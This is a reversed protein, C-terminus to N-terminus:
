PEARDIESNITSTFAAVAHERGLASARSRGAARLAAVLRADTVVRRVAAAVLYPSKSGLVVGADGVTEPVAGAGYAVVPVGASMAELLPAGYGEHDSCMVLVDANRFYAALVEPSASGVLEVSKDLGLAEVYRRLARAYRDSLNRGVVFLRAPGGYAQRYAAFASVVDHQAKHPSVQGVALWDVCDPRATGDSRPSDAGSSSSASSPSSRTRAAAAAARKSEQLRRLTRPDPAGLDREPDVILPAVATRRYGAGELESENYSSVAIALGVEPALSRLQSRGLRVEAAVLPEWDELLAAPTMNHYNLLKWGPHSRFAAAAPSGISAQYIVWQSGDAIRPLSALPSVRSTVDPGISLAYIGSEYGLDSLIAQVEFTHRSVADRAVISPIVQDIRV